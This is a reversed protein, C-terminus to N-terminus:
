SLRNGSTDILTLRIGLETALVGALVEASRADIEDSTRRLLLRLQQRTTLDIEGARLHGDQLIAQTELRLDLDVGMRALEATPVMADGKAGVDVRVSRDASHATVSAANLGVQAKAVAEETAKLHAMAEAVRNDISERM